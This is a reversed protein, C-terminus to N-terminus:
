LACIMDVDVAPRAVQKRDLRNKYSRTGRKQLQPCCGRSMSLAKLRRFPSHKM